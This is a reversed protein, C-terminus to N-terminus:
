IKKQPAPAPAVAGPVGAAAAVPSAYRVQVQWNDGNRKWTDVVFVNQAVGAKQPADIKWLFSVVMLDGYDHVAMQGITSSFAPLSQAQQLSETRPTPVGPAASTREEYGDAVLKDLTATDHKQVADLWQKELETFIMVNRTMTPVRGPAGVQGAATATAASLLGVLILLYKM